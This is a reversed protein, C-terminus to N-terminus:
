MPRIRSWPLSSTRTAPSKQRRRAPMGGASTGPGEPVGSRSHLHLTHGGSILHEVMPKGMIGLGIFGINM